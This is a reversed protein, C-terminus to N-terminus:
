QGVEKNCYPCRYTVKGDEKRIKAKNYYRGCHPCQKNGAKDPPNIPTGPLDDPPYGMAVKKGIEDKPPKGM